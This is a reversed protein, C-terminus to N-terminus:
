KLLADLQTQLGPDSPRKADADVIKGDPGILIFRPISTIGYAKIFDSTWDKDAILQIGGLNKDTVFKRWKEYDKKVDISISVFEINKGHYKEEVKQLSPIEARCPGCWTAWNDVYVYKGKLDSLKTKGGKHNEYEFPPSMTNNMKGNAMKQKFYAEMQGLEADMMKKKGEVFAPDFKQAALKANEKQKKAEIYKLVEEPQMAMVDNGEAADDRISQALYNNEDAGTGTYSMSGDFNKADMKMKLDYGNKLYLNSYEVGDYFTYFGDKVKLTDTFIGDKNVQMKKVLAQGNLIYIADGNRNAIDATFTVYDKAAKEGFSMLLIASFLFLIKKM